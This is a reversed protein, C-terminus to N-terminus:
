RVQGSDNGPIGSGARPLATDTNAGESLYQKRNLFERKAYMLAGARVLQALSVGVLEATQELLQTETLATEELETKSGKFFAQPASSDFLAALRPLRRWPDPKKTRSKSPTSAQM